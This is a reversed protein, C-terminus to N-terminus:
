PGLTFYWFLTTFIKPCPNSHCECETPSQKKLANFFLVNLSVFTILCLREGGGVGRSAKKKERALAHHVHKSTHRPHRHRRRRRRMSAKSVCCLRSCVTNPNCSASIDLVFFIALGFAAAAGAAAPSPAAAPSLPFTFYMRAPRLPCTFAV